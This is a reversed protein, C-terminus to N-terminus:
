YREVVRLIDREGCKAAQITKIVHPLTMFAFHGHCLSRLSGPDSYVQVAGEDELAAGASRYANGRIRAEQANALAM